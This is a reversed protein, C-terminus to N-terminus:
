ITDFGDNASSEDYKGFSGESKYRGRIDQLAVVYGHQAFYKAQAVLGAGEKNYPTRQLLVPMREAIAVGNRAPRYIDTALKPGGDRTPIMVDKGSLIADYLQETQLGRTVVGCVLVFVVILLVTKAKM